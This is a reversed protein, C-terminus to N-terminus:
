PGVETALWDVPDLFLLSAYEKSMQQSESWCSEEDLAKQWGPTPTRFDKGVLRLLRDPDLAKVCFPGRSLEGRGQATSGPTSFTEGGLVLGHIESGRLLFGSLTQIANVTVHEDVRSVQVLWSDADEVVYVDQREGGAGDRAGVRYVECPHGARRLTGAILPECGAADARESGEIESKLLSILPRKTSLDFNKVAGTALYDLVGYVEIFWGSERIAWWTCNPCVYLCTPDLLPGFGSALHERGAPSPPVESQELRATCMPCAVSMSPRTQFVARLNFCTSDQYTFKFKM